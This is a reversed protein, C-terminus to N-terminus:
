ALIRDSLTQSGQRKLAVGERESVSISFSFPISRNLRYNSFKYGSLATM